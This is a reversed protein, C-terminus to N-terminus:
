KEIFYVYNTASDVKKMGNEKVYLDVTIPLKGTYEKIPVIKFELIRASGANLTVEVSPEKVSIVHKGPYMKALFDYRSDGINKVQVLVTYVEGVKMVSPVVYQSIEGIKGGISANLEIAPETNKRKLVFLNYPYITESRYIILYNELINKKEEEKLLVNYQSESIILYHPKLSNIKEIDVEVIESYKNGKKLACVISANINELNIYYKITTPRRNFVGILINDSYGSKIIDTKIFHVADRVSLHEGKEWYPSSIGIFLYSSLMIATLLLIFIGLFNKCGKEFSCVALHSLMVFYLPFSYLLYYKTILTFLLLICLSITSIMLFSGEKERSILRQLYLLITIFLLFAASLEFLSSIPSILTGSGWALIETIKEIARTFVKDPSFSLAAGGGLGKEFAKVAERMQSMKEHRKIIYFYVPNEGTIFLCTLLPLLLLLAFIFMLFIRKDLLAKISKRTWFAYILVAPVLFVPLYKAAIALGLMVGAIIAYTTNRQEADSCQSLWFFYLFATVFFLTFAELMFIRSYLCHYASFCLFFAALLGTKRDYIEKGFLYLFPVTLSGFLVSIMRLTNLDGDFLVTVVAGLYSLFPSPGRFVDATPAWNSALIETTRHWYLWEDWELGISSVGSVRVLFAISFLSIIIIIDKKEMKRM